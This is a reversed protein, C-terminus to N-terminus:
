LDSLENAYNGNGLIRMHTIFITVNFPAGRIRYFHNEMGKPVERLSIKAGEPLLNKGKFLCINSCYYQYWENHSEGPTM